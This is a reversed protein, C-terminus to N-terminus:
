FIEFIIEFNELFIKKITITRYIKFIDNHTVLVKFSVSNYCKLDDYLMYLQAMDPMDFGSTFNKDKKIQYSFNPIGLNKFYGFDKEM